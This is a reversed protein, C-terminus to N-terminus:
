GRGRIRFTPILRTLPPQLSCTRSPSVDELFSWRDSISGHSSSALAMVVKSCANLQAPTASSTHEFWLRPGGQLIYLDEQPKWTTKAVEPGGCLWCHWRLVLLTVKVGLLVGVGFVLWLTPTFLDTEPSPEEVSQAHMRWKTDRRCDRL